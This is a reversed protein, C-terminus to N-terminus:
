QASSDGPLKAINVAIRRARRPHAFHAAAGARNTVTGVPSGDGSLYRSNGFICASLLCPWAAPRGFAGCAAGPLEPLVAIM